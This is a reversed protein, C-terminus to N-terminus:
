KGGIMREALDASIIEVQSNLDQQAKAKEAALKNSLTQYETKLEERLSSLIKEQQASALRASEEYKKAGELRATHLESNYQELKEEIEKLRDSSVTINKAAARRALLLRQFPQIFLVESILFFVVFTGLIWYFTPDLGLQLAIKSLEAL